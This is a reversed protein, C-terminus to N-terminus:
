TKSDKWSPKAASQALAEATVRGVLGDVRLGHAQQFRTVADTTLPGYRGDVPGAQFGLRSLQRQLAKVREIRDSTPARLIERLTEETRPGLVGDIALDHAEQFSTVAATTMPGYVGDAPGPDFGLFSLLAQLRKIRPNSLVKSGPVDGEGGSDEGGSDLRRDDGLDAARRYAAEAGVVDDHRALLRGLNIAAAADGRDSARRYAAAAGALDGQQELLEGLRTAAAPDGRKDARRYAVAAAALEGSEALQRGLEFADTVDSDDAASRKFRKVM